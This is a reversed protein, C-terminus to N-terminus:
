TARSTPGYNLLTMIVFGNAYRVIDEMIEMKDIEFQPFESFSELQYRSNVAGLDERPEAIKSMQEIGLVRAGNEAASMLAPLGGTRLGVVVVEYDLTETIEAEDIQPAEGLWSPTSPRQTTADQHVRQKATECGSLSGATAAVLAAAGAGKFFNRRSVNSM